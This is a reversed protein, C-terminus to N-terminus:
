PGVSYGNLDITIKAGPTVTTPAPGNAARTNKDIVLLSATSFNGVASVDVTLSFPVGPGNSDTAPSKVAHHAVM